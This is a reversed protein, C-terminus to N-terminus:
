IKEENEKYYNEELKEYLNELMFLGSLVLSTTKINEDISNLSFTLCKNLFSHPLKKSPEAESPNYTIFLKFNSHIRFQEKESNKTYIYEPGNDYMTLNQNELDCLSSIRQYLEPQASEIGDLIVWDGNIMAKIFASDENSLHKFFSLQENLLSKLESVLLLNENNIDTGKDEILKILNRFHSPLWKDSNDLDIIKEIEEGFVKKEKKM